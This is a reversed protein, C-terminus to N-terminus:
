GKQQRSVRPDDYTTTKNNHDVFYPKQQQDYRKEWGSPLPAEVYPPPSASVKIAPQAEIGLFKSVNGMAAIWKAELMAGDLLCSFDLARGHSCAM